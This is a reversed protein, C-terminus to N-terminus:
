FSSRWGSPFPVGGAPFDAFVSLKAAFLLPISIRIAFPVRRFLFPQRRCEDKGPPVEHDPLPVDEPLFRYPFVPANHLFCFLLVSVSAAAPFRVPRAKRESLVAESEGTRRGACDPAAHFHDTGSRCVDGDATLFWLTKQSPVPLVAPVACPM